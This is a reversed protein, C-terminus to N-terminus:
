LTVLQLRLKTSIPQGNPVLLFNKHVNPSWSDYGGVGMTYSDVHVFIEKGRKLEYDHQCKDLEELSYRSINFGYGTVDNEPSHADTRPNPVIGIGASKDHSKIM